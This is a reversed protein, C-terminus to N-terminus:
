LRLVLGLDLCGSSWQAYPGFFDHVGSLRGLCSDGASGSRIIGLVM